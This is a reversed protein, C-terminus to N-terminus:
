TAVYRRELYWGGALRDQFVTAIQDGAMLLRYYYRVIERRWWEQAVRWHDTIAVVKRARAAWILVRPREQDDVVAEIPLPEPPGVASAPRLIQEGWRQRLSEVTNELLERRQDKLDFLKGQRVGEEIGALPFLTLILEEIEERLDLGGQLISRGIQALRDLSASPSKLHLSRGVSGGSSATLDVRLSRCLRSTARLEKVAREMLLLLAGALQSRDMVAEEFRIREEIRPPVRDPVLPSPDIGRALDYLTRFKGGFRQTVAAKGLKVLAGFTYVGLKHLYESNEEDCPLYWLPLGALFDAERGVPVIMAGAQGAAKAAVSATFKNSAVGVRAELGSAGRLVSVMTHAIESEPGYLRDLGSVEVYGLGLGAMEVLPSFGLLVERSAYQVQEYLGHDPSLFTAWPCLREAQRLPMGLYVGQAEAQPSCDLVEGKEWPKGGIIFPKGRLASNKRTEVQAPFHPILV